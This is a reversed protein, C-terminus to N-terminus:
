PEGELATWIEDRLGCEHLMDGASRLLSILADKENRLEEVALLAAEDDQECNLAKCLDYMFERLLNREEIICLAADEYSAAIELKDSLKM